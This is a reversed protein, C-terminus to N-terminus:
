ARCATLWRSTSCRGSRASQPRRSASYWYEPTDPLSNTEPIFFWGKYLFIYVVTFLLGSLMGAIAGYNNV